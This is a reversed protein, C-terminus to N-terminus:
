DSLITRFEHHNRRQLYITLNEEEEKQTKTMGSMM